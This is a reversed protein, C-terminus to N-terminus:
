LLEEREEYEGQEGRVLPEDQFCGFTREFFGPPWGLDEPTKGETAIAIPQFIVIVELDTDKIGGPIQLHLMGDSGVRSRVKISQM